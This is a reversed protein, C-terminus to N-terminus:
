EPLDKTPHAGGVLVFAHVGPFRHAIGVRRLSCKNVIMFLGFIM